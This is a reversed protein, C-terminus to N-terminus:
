SQARSPVAPVGTPARSRDVAHAVRDDEEVEVARQDVGPRDDEGRHPVRRPGDEAAVGVLLEDAGRDAARAQDRLHAVEVRVPDVLEDLHVAGVVLREVLVRSDNM